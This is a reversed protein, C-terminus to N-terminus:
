VLCDGTGVMPCLYTLIIINIFTGNRFYIRDILNSCFFKTKPTQYKSSTKVNQGSHTHHYLNKLTKNNLFPRRETVLTYM